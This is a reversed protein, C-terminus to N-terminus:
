EGDKELQELQEVLRRVELVTLTIKLHYDGNIEEEYLDGMIQDEAEQRIATSLITPKGCLKYIPEGCNQCVNHNISM